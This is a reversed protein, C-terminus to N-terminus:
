LRRSKTNAASELRQTEKVRLTERLFDATRSLHDHLLSCALDADRALAADTIQRHEGSVDRRPWQTIRNYLIRFRTQRDHVDACISITQDSGCADVLAVHYARHLQQWLPNPKYHHQDLSRPTLDLRRHALVLREEWDIDGRQVSARLAAVSIILETQVLEELEAIDAGVVRFGRHDLRLVLKEAVMQSLAERIPSAGVGYRERLGDIRLKMGPELAGSLIDRRLSELVQNALTLEEEIISM